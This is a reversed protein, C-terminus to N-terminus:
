VPIMKSVAHQIEFANLHNITMDFNTVDLRESIYSFTLFIVASLGKFCLSSFLLCFFSSSAFAEGRKTGWTVSHAAQLVFDEFELDEKLLVLYKCYLLVRQMIFLALQVSTM